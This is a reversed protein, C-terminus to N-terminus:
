HRLMEEIKLKSCHLLQFGSYFIIQGGLGLLYKKLPLNTSCHTTAFKHKKYVPHAKGQRCATSIIDKDLLM